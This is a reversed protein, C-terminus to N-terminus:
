NFAPINTISQSENFLIELFKSYLLYVTLM